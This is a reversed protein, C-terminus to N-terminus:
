SFVNIKIFKYYESVVVTCAISDVCCHKESFHSKKVDKWHKMLFDYDWVVTLIHLFSSNKVSQGLYFAM